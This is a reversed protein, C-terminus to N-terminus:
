LTLQIGLMFVRLPPLRQPTQNEPDLGEYNTITLLNQGQLYIRGSVGPILNERLLYSLSLNRLRIFSADGISVDSTRYNLLATSLARRDAGRGTSFRQIEAIDGERQWRDLVFSPQNLNGGITALFRRLNFGSQKVFQFFFDLQFNRWKLSNNLGGFYDQTIEKVAERDGSRTIEGDGDFDKFQFIGTEPDVGEYQFVKEIFLSEGVVYESAFTSTELGPFSVLENRPITLNFGTTWEFQNSKFNITSLELELGTNQVTAELNANLTNFGTTAPMPIGVLQNSSRNHYYSGSISIKDELFGLELGVEFKKNVEWAFDPNFLRTPALGAVGQYSASNQYTDLFEYNGIQDNGTTGYSTRLKGFSLFPLGNQVFAENSFIWAAGVAGFNAFQKGPGFRSSGDRRGTLNVIYRGKWNYNVRAFIANYKYESKQFNRPIFRSASPINGILADSPFGIAMNDEADRLQRQFTAGVQVELKGQNIEKKWSVQPEVIWTRLNGGSLFAIANASTRGFAPDFATSPMKLLEDSQMNTLGLNTKIQLGPVIEYALVGNSILTHTKGEFTRELDSLPNTWTSNEWNLSGDENYLAPANPALQFTKDTLDSRPQNNNDATYSVSFSATLKNDSSIHNLAMHGTGKLYRFDGPFVNTQKKYTGSFLFTTNANGGSLSIQANTINATGGIMEEQWDTFRNEDWNGNLDHDRSGPEIGDNFFAENRMELYQQTNLLDFRNAVTGIGSSVDIDLKTKGAKGKKTTILVVGNAGRSGYIATADADKLIEISEIDAPNIATLPDSGIGPTLIGGSTSSFSLTQFSFPVGDILYLPRNADLGSNFLNRLSNQGRIQINVAGGPTGNTQQIYVGPVRGQLAQMPNTTQQQEIENASVKAINGTMERKDVSWYGANITVGQLSTLDPSLSIDIVARGNVSVEQQLYGIYSFILIASEENQLVLRYNGDIDTVTGQNTGKVLINAGALPEGTEDTVKGDIIKESLKKPKKGRPNELGSTRPMKVNIIGNVQKFALGTRAAIKELFFAVSQNTANLSLRHDKTATLTEKLYSFRFETKAEIADLIAKVEAKELHLSIMVEKINKAQANGDEALLVGAFTGCCFIVAFFNVSM